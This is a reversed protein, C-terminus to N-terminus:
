VKEIMEFVRLHSAAWRTFVLSPMTNVSHQRRAVGIGVVNGECVGSVLNGNGLGTVDRVWLRFCSQRIFALIVDADGYVSLLVSMM